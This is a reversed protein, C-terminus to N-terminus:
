EPLPAETADGPDALLAALGAHDLGAGLGLAMAVRAKPGGLYGTPLAGARFWTAGGGPFAYTPAARGAVCRTTLAVPIGEGMAREAAALLEPTTNGSGTAAVVIGEAGGAVAADLLSGDMGVVV